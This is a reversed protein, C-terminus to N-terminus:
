YNKKFKSNVFVRYMSLKKKKNEREITCYKNEIEKYNLVNTFLNSLYEKSFYHVLTGDGKKYCNEAIINNKSDNLDGFISEKIGDEQHLSLEQAIRSICQKQRFLISIVVNDEHGVLNSILHPHHFDLNWLRVAGDRGTSLM